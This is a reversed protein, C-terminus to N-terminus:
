ENGQKFGTRRALADFSMPSTADPPQLEASAIFRSLPDARFRDLEARTLTQYDDIRFVALSLVAPAEAVGVRDAPTADAISAAGDALAERATDHLADVVDDDSGIGPLLPAMPGSPTPIRRPITPVTSVVSGYADAVAGIGDDIALQRAEDADAILARYAAILRANQEVVERVEDISEPARTPQADTVRFLYTSGDPGVMPKSPTGVALQLPRLAASPDEIELEGLESVSRVYDGFRANAQGAVTAATIAGVASLQNADLWRNTLDTVGPRFREAEEIRDALVSLRTPSWDSSADADQRDRAQRETELEGQVLRALELAKARAEEDRLRRIVVERAEAYGADPNGLAQRVAAQNARFYELAQAEDIKISEAIADIPFAIYELKVRDPTRYGFGYPEGQGPLDDRYDNFLEEVIAPNPAADRDVSAAANIVVIAGGVGSRSSLAASALVADSLRYSGAAMLRLGFAEEFRGLQEQQFSGLMLALRRSQPTLAEVGGETDRALSRGTVLDMYDLMVIFKGITAEIVPVPVGDTRSLSQLEEVSGGMVGLLADVQTQSAEIGLRRADSQIMIWRMAPSDAAGEDSPDYGESLVNNVISALLPFRSLLRLEGLAQREDDLRITQGNVVGLSPGSGQFLGQLARDLGFVAMLVVGLFVLVYKNLFYKRFFRLM